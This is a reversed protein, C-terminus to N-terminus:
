SLLPAVKRWCHKRYAQPQSELAFPAFLPSCSDIGVRCIDLQCRALIRQRSLHRFHQTDSEMQRSGGLPIYLYDRFGRQSVSTCRRWFEAIDRAFYPTRFNTMLTIGFLRATGIATDSYGSFDGYIQFAFYVAGLVLTPGSYEHHHDFVDNVFIACTDAVVVKKFLGVFDLLGVQPSTPM